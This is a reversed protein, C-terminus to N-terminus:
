FIFIILALYGIGILIHLVSFTSGVKFMRKFTLDKLEYNRGSELILMDAASGQPLFNGGLNIGLIFAILLSNSYFESLGVLIKIIPIFMITVPTNDLFGSLISTIILILVALIFEDEASLNEIAKEFIAITGNLQMLGVFIFLCIFFYILKYDIKQLYHNLSMRKKGEKNKIPNISVFIIAGILAALYIEPSFILLCFFIFLAVINKNFVKKDIHEDKFITKKMNSKKEKKSINYKKIEKSLVFKDLLIITLVFTFIFYPFINVLFWMFDLNFENSIIINQASGFPTLTASLNICVSVGLLYPVPNIELKRCATIILPIFIIVISIAAIISAFLTTILCFVYFLKRPNDQYRDVVRMAIEDIIKQEKLVEVILFLGIMFFIIEWEITMIYFEITRAEPIFIATILAGILIFLMSYYIYDYKEFFLIIVLGLFCIGIIIQLILLDM